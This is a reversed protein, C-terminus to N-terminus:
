ETEKGKKEKAALFEEVDSRVQGKYFPCKIFSGNRLGGEIKGIRYNNLLTAGLIFVNLSLITTILIEEM